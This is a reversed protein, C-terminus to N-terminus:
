SLQIMHNFLYVDQKMFQLIYMNTKSDEFFSNMLNLSSQRLPVLFIGGRTFEGM